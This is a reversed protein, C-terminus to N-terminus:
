RRSMARQIVDRRADAAAAVGMIGPCASSHRVAAALIGARATTDARVAAVAELALTASTESTSVPM